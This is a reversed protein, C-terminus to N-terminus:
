IIGIAKHTYGSKKRNHMIFLNGWFKGCVELSSDWRVFDFQNHNENLRLEFGNQRVRPSVQLPPNLFNAIERCCAIYKYAKGEGEGGHPKEGYFTKKGEKKKM